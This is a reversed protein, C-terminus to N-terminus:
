FESLNSPYRWDDNPNETASVGQAVYGKASADVGLQSHRSAVFSVGDAFLCCSGSGERRLNVEQTRLFGMTSSFNVFAQNRSSDLVVDLNRLYIKSLSNLHLCGPLFSVNSADKVTITRNEYATNNANRGLIELGFVPYGFLIAYDWVLDSLLRVQVRCGVPFVEELRQLTQIPKSSSSGDNEDNGSVADIFIYKVVNLNQPVVNADPTTIGNPFSVNGTDRNVVMGELWSAGDATVKISLDDNGALGIEARGSWDNKYVLSATDPESSKNISLQHSSGEHSFFSNASEVGFRSDVSASTNVGLLQVQDVDFGASTVEQWQLNSYVLLKQEQTVWATWGDEPLYYQWAGDQFAAVHGTKGIWEGEANEAVIFRAGTEPESPPLVETRSVVGMQVLADLHRIAENHTVHKQAQNPMIYPLKLNESIDM